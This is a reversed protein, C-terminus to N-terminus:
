DSLEHDEELYKRGKLKKPKGNQVVSASPLGAVSFGLELKKSSDSEALAKARALREELGASDLLSQSKSSHTDGKESGAPHMVLEAGWGGEDDLGALDGISYGELRSDRAEMKFRSARGEKDGTTKPLYEDSDDSDGGSACGAAGAGGAGGKIKGALDGISFGKLRSYHAEMKFRSARGEKDGTTKPLYEDSDDSDGGSACGAAGAGGAGGKIKSAKVKMGISHLREKASLMMALNVGAIMEERSSAKSDTSAADWLPAEVEEGLKEEASVLSPPMMGIKADIGEQATLSKEVDYVKFRYDQPLVVEVDEDAANSGSIIFRVRDPGIVDIVGTSDRRASVRMKGRNDHGIYGRFGSVSVGAREEGDDEIARMVGNFFRGAYSKELVKRKVRLEDTVKKPKDDEEEEAESYSVYGSNCSLIYFSLATKKSISAALYDYIMASLGTMGDPDLSLDSKTGITSPNGHGTINVALNKLNDKPCGKGRMFELAANLSNRGLSEGPYIVHPYIIAGKFKGGFGSKSKKELTKLDEKAMEYLERDQPMMNDLSRKEEGEVGQHTASADYRPSFPLMVVILSNVKPNRPM